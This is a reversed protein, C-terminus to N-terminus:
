PRGGWEGTCNDRLKVAGIDLYEIPWDTLQPAEDSCIEAARGISPNTPRVPLADLRLYSSIGGKYAGSRRRYVDDKVSQSSPPRCVGLRM